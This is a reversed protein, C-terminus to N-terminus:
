FNAALAEATERKATEGTERTLHAELARKAEPGGIQGLAWAVHARVVESDDGLARTLAPVAAAGGTNGLAVAANRRFLARDRIYNYMLPEVVRAYFEDSLELMKELDFETAKRALYPSVPLKAKLKAANKPCAEQCLDCGHVWSGMKARIDKPIYPSVGNDEGRTFFTNYAICRRPNLRM